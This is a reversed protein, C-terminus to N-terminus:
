KGCVTNYWVMQYSVLHYAITRLVSDAMLLM